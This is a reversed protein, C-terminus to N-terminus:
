LEDYGYFDHAVNARYEPHTKIFQFVAPCLPYVRQGIKQLYILTKDMIANKASTHELEQPIHTQKLEIGRGQPLQEYTIYCTYGQMQMDFRSAKLNKVVQSDVFQNQM